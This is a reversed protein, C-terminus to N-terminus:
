LTRLTEYHMGDGQSAHITPLLVALWGHSSASGHPIDFFTQINRLTGLDFENIFPTGTLMSHRKLDQNILHELSTQGSAILWSHWVMLGGVLPLLTAVLIVAFAFCAQLLSRQDKDTFNIFLHYFPMAAMLLFYTAGITLFVLFLYFYRHNFFGVCNHIWVCHHDFRMICRGCVSCHHTRHPKQLKCKTCIPQNSGLLAESVLLEHTRGPDTIVALSYHFMINLILYVAFIAHLSRLLSTMAPEKGEYVGLPFWYDLVICFYCLSIMTVLGFVAMILFPGLGFAFSNFSNSMIHNWDKWLFRM